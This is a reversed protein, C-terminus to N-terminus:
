ASNYFFTFIIQLISTFIYKLHLLIYLIDIFYNGKNFRQKQKHVVPGSYQSTSLTNDYVVSLASFLNKYNPWLFRSIITTTHRCM